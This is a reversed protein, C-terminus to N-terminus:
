LKFSIKKPVNHQYSEKKLSIQEIKINLFYM